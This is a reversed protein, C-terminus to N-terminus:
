YAFAVLAAAGLGIAGFVIAIGFAVAARTRLSAKEVEATNSTILFVSGKSAALLRGAASDNVCTALVEYEHGAAVCREVFRCGLHLTRYATGPPVFVWYPQAEAELLDDRMDAAAPEPAGAAWSM